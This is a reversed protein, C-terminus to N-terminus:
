RRRNRYVRKRKKGARHNGRRRGQIPKGFGAQILSDAGSNVFGLGKNNFWNRVRDRHGTAALTNDIFSIPKIRRIKDLWNDPSHHTGRNARNMEDLTAKSNMFPDMHKEQDRLRKNHERDARSLPPPGHSPLPPPVKPKLSNYLELAPKVTNHIDKATNYAGVAQDYYGKVTNGYPVYSAVTSLSPIYDTLAGGRYHRRHIRKRGSRHVRKRGARYAHSQGGLRKKAARAKALNRLRQRYIEAASKRRPM